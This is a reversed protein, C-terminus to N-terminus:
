GHQWRLFIKINRVSNTWDFAEEIIKLNLRTVSDNGAEKIESTAIQVELRVPPNILKLFETRLRTKLSEKLEEIRTKQAADKTPETLAKSVTESLTDSIQNITSAVTQHTTFSELNREIVKNMELRTVSKMRISEDKLFKTLVNKFTSHMEKALQPGSNSFGKRLGESGKIIIPVDIEINPLRFRPIPLHSLIPDSAYLEAIRVAEIDAQMRALTIESMLNGLFDGLNAM